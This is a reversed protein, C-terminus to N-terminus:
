SNRMSTKYFSNMYNKKVYYIELLEAYNSINTPCEHHSICSLSNRFHKKELVNFIVFSRLLMTMTCSFSQNIFRFNGYVIIYTNGTKIKYYQKTKTELMLRSSKWLVAINTVSDPSVMQHCCDLIFFHFTELKFKTVKRKVVGM